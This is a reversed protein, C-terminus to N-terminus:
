GSGSLIDGGGEVCVHICACICTTIYLPSHMCCPFMQAVMIPSCFLTCLSIINNWSVISNITQYTTM